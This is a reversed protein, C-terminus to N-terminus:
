AQGQTANHEAVNGATDIGKAAAQAQAQMFMAQQQEQKIEEPTKMYKDVKIRRAAALDAAIQDQRLVALLQPSLTQLAGMDALWLKLNEVDGNRSLADLGTVISPRVESGNIKFNIRALLYYSLPIQFDVALRSYAGGLSTELETAQMRIEEATVREADRTVASGLLFGRGIRQIYEQGIAQVIQMDGAKGSQILNIDEKTGPLAAGNESAMLDEPKTQGAPNVLWRFESCLVAAIVQSKSLTSLGAFDGQYDEVLGTGYHADDSLDWTLVRYPLQDPEYVTSFDAPLQHQDVWQEVHFNGNPLRKIWRYLCVEKDPKTEYTKDIYMMAIQVDEVLEDFTLRDRHLIELVRGTQSRRVCYNKLGVVRTEDELILLVNGTVILHKIAEYLKPRLSMRDLESIAEKEGLSLLENLKNEDVGAKMLENRLKVSPDLRFFPRSPAFLALMIKNALHNVAQAGVAQFDHQLEDTNQDYGEPTCLKAITFGAYKETRRILPQRKGDLQSWRAKANTAVAM